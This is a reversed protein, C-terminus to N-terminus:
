KKRILIGENAKWYKGEEKMEREGGENEEQYSLRIPM